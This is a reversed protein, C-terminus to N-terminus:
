LNVMTVKILFKGKAYIETSSSTLSYCYIHQVYDFFERQNAIYMSVTSIREPPIERNSLM